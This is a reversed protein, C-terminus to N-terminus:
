TKTPAWLHLVIDDNDGARNTYIKIQRRKSIIVFIKDSADDKYANLKQFIRSKSKWKSHNHWTLDKIFAGM